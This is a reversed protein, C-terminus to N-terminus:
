LPLLLGSISGFHSLSSGTMGPADGGDDGWLLILASPFGLRDVHLSRRSAIAFNVDITDHLEPIWAACKLHLRARRGLAAAAACRSRRM